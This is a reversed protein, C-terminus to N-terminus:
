HHSMAQQYFNWWRQVLLSLSPYIVSLYYRPCSVNELNTCGTCLVDDIFYAGSKEFTIVHHSVGQPTCVSVTHVDASSSKHVIFLGPAAGYSNLFAEAEERTM